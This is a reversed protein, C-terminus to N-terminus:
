PRVGPGQGGVGPGQMEVGVIALGARDAAELAAPRDLLLTRGAEVALVAARVEELLAVTHTGVAPLDFRPDQEPRAAKVVVAGAAMGGGRRITVDTGEAAEVALIVGRKLVVTQGVDQAAVARAVSMGLGIDEWEDAAPARRTLVGPGVALEPAFDLPGVVSVGLQAMRAAARVFVSQDRRDSAEALVDRFLTDGRELLDTRSVRGAMVVRGAGHRQLAAVAEEMQGFRIAYAHDALRALGPDADELALCVLPHGRAKIARALEVPLSGGGAILGITDRGGVPDSRM